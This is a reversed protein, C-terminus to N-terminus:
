WDLPQHRRDRPPTTNAKDSIALDTASPPPILESLRKCKLRKVLKIASEVARKEYDICEDGELRTMGRAPSAWTVPKRARLSLDIIKGRRTSSSSRM